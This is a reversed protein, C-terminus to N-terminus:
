DILGAAKMWQLTEALAPEFPSARWGLERAAKESSFSVRRGALRVGTLPAKPAQGTLRAVFHTDIVGALLATMGDLPDCFEQAGDPGIRVAMANITFDRRVLDGDLTDGFTVVPNRGVRDYAEARYTTIEITLGGKRVSVTGFEIGTDWIADAWGTVLAVVEDPRAGTTFDLDESLRGLVADRVSGGVLFLDHGADTFLAGLPVLVDSYGRLAIAAAALLRTRREEFHPFDPTDPGTM